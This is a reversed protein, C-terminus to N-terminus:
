LEADHSKQFYALLLPKVQSNIAYVNQQMDDYPKNGPMSTLWGTISSLHEPVSWSAMDVGTDKVRSRVAGTSLEGYMVFQRITEREAPRLRQMLKEIDAVKEVIFPDDAVKSREESRVDLRTLVKSLEDYNLAGAFEGFLDRLFHFLSKLNAAEDLNVSMRGSFPAPLDGKQINGLCCPIMPIGSFWTRGSEFWVWKRNLGRETALVLVIKAKELAALIKPVWEDGLRLDDPDSSVFVGLSPFVKEICGKLEIAIEEDVAAHSIFISCDKQSM